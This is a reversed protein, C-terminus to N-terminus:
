HAHFIGQTSTKQAIRLDKDNGNSLTAWARSLDDLFQAESFRAATEQGAVRRLEVDADNATLAKDIAHAFQMWDGESVWWGNQESAYEQGGEGHFGCVLCGSAMAELPPLGLGENKSLSAFVLSEGLTQAVQRRSMDKIEIWPVDSHKPYISAFIGQLLRIDDPRKRPMFAIQRKKELNYATSFVDLIRPHVVQWDVESGWALLTERTYNSCCIGGYLPFRNMELMNAFGRFTYFPNQNHIIIKCPLKSVFEFSQPPFVEPVILWDDEAFRISDGWHVMPVSYPKQPIGVRSDPDLLAFARYGLQRLGAVHQYNVVEGGARFPLTCAYYISPLSDETVHFEM